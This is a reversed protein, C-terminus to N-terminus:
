KSSKLVLGLKALREQIDTIHNVRLKMRWLDEYSYQILDGLTHIGADSLTHQIRVNLDLVQVSDTLDVAAQRPLNTEAGRLPLRDDVIRFPRPLDLGHSSLYESVRFADDTSISSARMLRDSTLEFLDRVRTIGIERLKRLVSFPWGTKWLMENLIGKQESSFSNFPLTMISWPQLGRVAEAPRWRYPPLYAARPALGACGRLARKVQHLTGLGFGEIKLLERETSIVLEGVFVIGARDLIGATREDLDLVGRWRQNMYLSQVDSLPIIVRPLDDPIRDPREPVYRTGISRSFDPGFAEQIEAMALDIRRDADKYGYCLNSYRLMRELEQLPTYLLHSADTIGLSVLAEAIERKLPLQSSLSDAFSRPAEKRAADEIGRGGAVGGQLSPKNWELDRRGLSLAYKQALERAMEQVTEVSGLLQILHAVQAGAVEGVYEIGARRLAHQHHLADVRENLARVAEASLPARMGVAMGYALLPDTNVRGQKSYYLSPNLEVLDRVRKLRGRAPVDFYSVPMAEPVQGGNFRQIYFDRLFGKMLRDEMKEIHSVSIGLSAALAERSQPKEAAIRRQFVEQDRTNALRRIYIAAENSFRRLLEAEDLPFDPPSAQEEHIERWLGRVGEQFRAFGFSSRRRQFDDAHFQSRLIRDLVEARAELPEDAAILWARMRDAFEGELGQLALWEDGVTQWAEVFLAQARERGGLFGQLRLVHDMRTPVTGISFASLVGQSLGTVEVLENINMSRMAEGIARRWAELRPLHPIIERVAAVRYDGASPAQERPRRLRERLGRSSFAKGPEEAVGLVRALTAYEARDSWAIEVINFDRLRHGPEDAWGRGTRQAFLETSDTQYTHYAAHAGKGRFGRSLMGISIIPAGEEEWARMAASNETEDNDSHVTRAVGPGYRDNMAEQLLEAQQITHVFLFNKHPKELGATRNRQYINFHYYAVLKRANEQTPSWLILKEGTKEDKSEEYTVSQLDLAAKQEETMGDGADAPRKTLLIRRGRLHRIYADEIADLINYEGSQRYGELGAGTGSLGILLRHPHRGESPPAIRSKPGRSLEGLSFHQLIKRYTPSQTFYAEDFLLVTPRRPDFLDLHRALSNASAVVISKEAAPGRTSRDLSGDFRSIEDYAFGPLARNSPDPSMLDGLSQLTITSSSSVDIFRTEAPMYHRLLEIIPGKMKSKGTQMPSALGLWPSAGSSVDREIGQLMRTQYDRLGWKAAIEAAKGQGFPGAAEPAENLGFRAVAERSAANGRREALNGQWHREAEMRAQVQQLRGGTASHSLRGGAELAVSSALAQAFRQSFAEGSAESLHTAERAYQGALMASASVGHRWVFGQAQLYHSFGKLLAFDLLTGAFARGEHWSESQGPRSLAQHTARFVAVEGVLASSWAAANLLGPSRLFTSLLPSALSRLGSFALSGTSIAALSQFNTAEASFGQVLADV